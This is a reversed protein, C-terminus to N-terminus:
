FTWGVSSWLAPAMGAHEFWGEPFFPWLLEEDEDEGTGGIGDPGSVLKTAGIGGTLTLAKYRFQTSIGIDIWHYTGAPIATKSGAWPHELADSAHSAGYGVYLEFTASTPTGGKTYSVREALPQAVLLSGIAGTYALGVGPEIRTRTSLVRSYRVAMLGAPGGMGLELRLQNRDDAHLDPKKIAPPADREVFDRADTQQDLLAVAAPVPEGRALSPLALSCACLLSVPRM